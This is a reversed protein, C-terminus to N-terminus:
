DKEIVVDTFILGEWPNKFWEIEYSNIDKEYKSSKSGKFTEEVFFSCYAVFLNKKGTNKDALRTITPPIQCAKIKYFSGASSLASEFVKLAEESDKDEYGVSILIPPYVKVYMEFLEPNLRTKFYKNLFRASERYIFGFVKDVFPVYFSKNVYLKEFMYNQTQQKKFLHKLKDSIPLEELRLSGGGSYAEEIECEKGETKMLYDAVEKGQTGTFFDSFHEIYNTYTTESTQRSYKINMDVMPLKILKIKEM